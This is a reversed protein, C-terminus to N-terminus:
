RSAFVFDEFLQPFFIYFRSPAACVSNFMFSRLNFFFCSAEKQWTERRCWSMKLLNCIFTNWFERAALFCAARRLMGQWVRWWWWGGGGWCLWWLNGHCGQTSVWWQSTQQVSSHFVKHWGSQCRVQGRQPVPWSSKVFWSLSDVPSPPLLSLPPPLTVYLSIPPCLFSPVPLSTLSPSFLSLPSLNITLSCFHQEDTLVLVNEMM